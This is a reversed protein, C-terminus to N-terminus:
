LSWVRDNSTDFFYVIDSTVDKYVLEFGKQAGEFFGPDEEELATTMTTATTATTPASVERQKGPMVVESPVPYAGPSKKTSEKSFVKHIGKVSPTGSSIVSKTQKISSIVSKPPINNNNNSKKNKHKFINSMLLNHKLSMKSRTEEASNPVARETTSGAEMKTSGNTTTYVRLLPHQIPDGIESGSSPNIIIGEHGMPLQQSDIPSFMQYTIITSTSSPSKLISAKSNKSLIISSNGSCFSKRSVVSPTTAVGLLVSSSTGRGEEATTDCDDRNELQTTTTM